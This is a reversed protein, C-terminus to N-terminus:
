CNTPNACTLATDAPLTGPGCDPFPAVPATGGGFLFGLLSVPDTINVADDGNTNLAAVCGPEPARALLRNLTCLADALDVTGDAAFADVLEHALAGMGIREYSAVARSRFAPTALKRYLHHEPGDM